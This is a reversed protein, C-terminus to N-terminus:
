AHLKDVFAIEEAPGRAPQISQAKCNVSGPHESCNGLLVSNDACSCPCIM